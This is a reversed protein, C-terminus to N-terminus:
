RKLEVLNKFRPHNRLPNWTPDLRLLPISLVGPRSLLFELQDIAKDYEDVMVYVRALDAIRYLGKWADKTVPLLEVALKGERIADEKRGLGAYAIGLSSHFRAHEPRQQIKSELIGRSEDYYKKALQKKNM